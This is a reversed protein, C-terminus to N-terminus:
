KKKTKNNAIKPLRVPRPNVGFISGVKPKASGLSSRNQSSGSYTRDGSQHGDSTLERDGEEEMIVTSILSTPKSASMPKIRGSAGLSHHPSHYPNSGHVSVKLNSNGSSAHSSGKLAGDDLHIGKTVTRSSRELLAEQEMTAFEGSPSSCIGRSSSPLQGHARSSTFDTLSNITLDEEKGLLNKGGGSDFISLLPRNKAVSRETMSTRTKSDMGVGVVYPLGDNNSYVDHISSTRTRDAYSSSSSSYTMPRTGNSLRAHISSIHSTGPQHSQFSSGSSDLQLNPPPLFRSYVNPVTSKFGCGMVRQRKPSQSSLVNSGGYLLPYSVNSLVVVQDLAMLLLRIRTSRIAAIRRNWFSAKNLHAAQLREFTSVINQKTSAYKLKHGRENMNENAECCIGRLKEEDNLMNSIMAAERLHDKKKKETDSILKVLQGDSKYVRAIYSFINWHHSQGEPVYASSSLSPVKMHTFGHSINGDEPITPHTVSLIHKNMLGTEFSHIGQEGSAGTSPAGEAVMKLMRDADWEGDSESGRRRMTGELLGEAFSILDSSFHMIQPDVSEDSEEGRERKGEIELKMERVRQIKELLSMVVAQAHQYQNHALKTVFVLGDNFAHINNAGQSVGPGMVGRQFGDDGMGGMGHGTAGDLDDRRPTNYKFSGFQNPVQEGSLSNGDMDMSEGQQPIFQSSTLHFSSSHHDRFSDPRGSRHDYAQRSQSSRVSDSGRSRTSFGGNRQSSGSNRSRRRKADEMWEHHELNREMVDEDSVTALSQVQSNLSSLLRRVSSAAGSTRSAQASRQSSRAGKRSSGASGGTGGRSKVRAQARSISQSLERQKERLEQERVRKAEEREEKLHQMRRKVEDEHLKKQKAREERELERKKKEEERLKKAAEEREREKERRKQREERAKIVAQRELDKREKEASDDTEAPVLQEFEEAKKELDLIADRLEQNKGELDALAKELLDIERERAEVEQEVMRM